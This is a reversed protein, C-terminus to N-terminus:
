RRGKTLQRRLKRSKPKARRSLSGAPRRRRGTTRKHNKRRGGRYREDDEDSDYREERLLSQKEDIKRSLDTLTEITDNFGEIVPAVRQGAAHLAKSAVGSLRRAADDGFLKAIIPSKSAATNTLQIANELDEGLARRVSLLGVLANQVAGKADSLYKDTRFGMTVTERNLDAAAFADLVEPDGTLELLPFSRRLMIRIPERNKSTLYPKFISDIDSDSAGYPIFVDTDTRFRLSGVWLPHFRLTVGTGSMTTTPVYPQTSKSHVVEFEHTRGVVPSRAANWAFTLGKASM